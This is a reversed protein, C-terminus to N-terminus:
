DIICGCDAQPWSALFAEGSPWTRTPIGRSAFLFALSDRLAAEDDVIHVALDSPLTTM